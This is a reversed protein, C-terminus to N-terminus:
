KEWPIGVAELDLKVWLNDFIILVKKDPDSKLRKSLVDAKGQPSQKDKLDLRLADAIQDRINNLDPIQSVEVKVIMRFPRGAERLKKEVEKLLTTKGVGGPGYVGIVKLKEDDLAKMIDQFISARSDTITDGGDGASSHVSSAVIVLGPPASEYFVREFRGDPILKQIAQVTTRAERGLRYRAKPNPLWGCLCTKQGRGNELVDRAKNAITEVDAVWKEVVAETPKMNNRAEDILHQVRRRENELKEREEELQRVYSDAFIVYGCQRSVPAVLYVAAKSALSCVIDAM